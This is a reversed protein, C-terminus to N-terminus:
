IEATGNIALERNMKAINCFFENVELPNGAPNENANRVMCMTCFQNDPCQLCKPFDKRKLNRLYQIKKSYNWINYLSSEVINGVVFGQWGACPYVNGNEAICISSNCVSCVFDGPRMKEKKEADATIKNLYQPDTITRQKLIESIDELSLRNQLNQTDCNYQGIIVYDAGVNVDHKKGWKVVDMYSNVNQKLLPCSIQLPIDNELLKLIGSKTKEFSGVQQTISDHIKADMSYLSTQVGLLHNKKMEALIADNLMTLNSLVNVSFNYENCKRLFDIFNRHLMPEGGSITLHLLNMERCQELIDYFLDSGMSHYKNEHPIYCHVCRENCKSTIEIHLNTLQPRGGFFREFYDQTAQRPKKIYPLNNGRIHPVRKYSFGVDKENCEQLTEGSVVFGETELASYFEKADCKIVEIDADIFQMCIKEALQDLTQAERGLVSLFVAGSSSVIKDGIDDGIDSLPKYSFNRNDTIYGFEKYNRFIVDSKQKFYM